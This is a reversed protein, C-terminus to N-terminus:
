HGTILAIDEALRAETMPQYLASFDAQELEADNTYCVSDYKQNPAGECILWAAAKGQPVYVSHFIDGRMFKPFRLPEMKLGVTVEKPVRRFGGKGGLIQSDYEYAHLLKDRSVGTFLVNCIEGFIPVMTIDQRHQHIAVSFSYELHPMNRWLTHDPRAVFARIMPSSEKFVISDMGVAHCNILSMKLSPKM